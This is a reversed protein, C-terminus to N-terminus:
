SSNQEEGSYMEGRSTTQTGFGTSQNLRAVGTDCSIELSESSGPRGM